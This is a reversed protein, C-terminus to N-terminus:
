RILLYNRFNSILMVDDPRSESENYNLLMKYANITKIACSLIQVLKIDETEALLLYYLGSFYDGALVTLQRASTKFESADASSTVPVLEHTDLAVQVLMTAVIWHRKQKNSLPTNNMIM